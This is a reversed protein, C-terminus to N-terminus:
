SVMCEPIMLLALHCEFDLSSIGMFACPAKVHLPWSVRLEIKGTDCLGLVNHGLRTLQYMCM